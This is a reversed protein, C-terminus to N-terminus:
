DDTERPGAGGHGVGEEGEAQALDEQGAYEILLHRDLLDDARASAEQGSWVTQVEHRAVDRRREPETRWIAAGPRGHAGGTGSVSGAAMAMISSYDM